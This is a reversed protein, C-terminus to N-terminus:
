IKWQEDSKLIKGNKLILYQVAHINKLDKM